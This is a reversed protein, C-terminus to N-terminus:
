DYSTKAVISMDGKLINFFQPIEDIHFRKLFKGINLIKIDSRDRTVNKLNIM